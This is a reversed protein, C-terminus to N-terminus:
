LVASLAHGVTSALPPGAVPALVPPAMGRDAVGRRLREIAAQQRQQRNAEATALEALRESGPVSALLATVEEPSPGDPLLAPRVQNVVVTHPPLGSGILQDALELTESVPLEEPLTVLVLATRTQDELFVEIAKALDHFPGARSIETMTAAAQLLTLGHGTAPADLVMCDYVPDGRVPESILNEIKGLLLLDHLGPVADVFTAVFRNRVVRRAFGPLRLKRAGFEELCEPVTLSWIDVGPHGPRFDFSRGSLGFLPALATNDGLEAVCASRGQEAAAVGLAASITTRGVGGKGLVVVLRHDLLRM